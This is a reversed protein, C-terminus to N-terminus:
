NDGELLETNIMRDEIWKKNNPIEGVLYKQILLGCMPAAWTGGYGSNEIVAAVAIKPNNRPAFCFFISHDKGHPNEATGTKGLVKISDLQAMRATGGDANVVDEMGDMISEFHYDHIHLANPLKYRNLLSPEGEVSKVLHPTYYHGRNAIAAIANALQLTTAEMEGQGIGLSVMMSSKWRKSPYFKDYLITDPVYGSREGPLDIATKKGFGINKCFRNWSTLGERVNSYKDADIM